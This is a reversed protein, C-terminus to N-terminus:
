GSPLRESGGAHATRTTSSRHAAGPRENRLLQWLTVINRGLSRGEPAKGNGRCARPLVNDSPHLEFRTVLRTAAATM